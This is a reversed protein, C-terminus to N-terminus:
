DDEAEKRLREEEAQRAEWEFMIASVKRVLPNIFLQKRFVIVCVIMVIFLGVFILSAAWVPMCDALASIAAISGFILSAFILLIISVLMLVMGLLRSIGGTLRLKTLTYRTKAWAQVDEQTKKSVFSDFLTTEQQEEM